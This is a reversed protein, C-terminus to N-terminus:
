LCYTMTGIVHTASLETIYIDSNSLSVDLM